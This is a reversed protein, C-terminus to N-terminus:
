RKQEMQSPPASIGTKVVLFIHLTTLLIVLAPL